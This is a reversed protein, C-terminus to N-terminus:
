TPYDYGQSYSGYWYTGDTIFSLIDQKGATPTITPTGLANWKVGTFTAAGTGLPESQRLLLTFSKGLVPTPMTFVSTVGDTLKALLITASTIDLTVAAGVVNDFGTGIYSAGETYGNITLATGGSTITGTSDRVGVTGTTANYVLDVCGVPPTEAPPNTFLRLRNYM